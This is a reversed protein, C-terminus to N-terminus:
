VVVDKPYFGKYLDNKNVKHYKYNIHTTMMLYLINHHLIIVCEIKVLLDDQKVTCQVYNTWVQCYYLHSSFVIQIIM